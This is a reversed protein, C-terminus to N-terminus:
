EPAVSERLVQSVPVMAISTGRDQLGWLVLASVTDARLRGLMVVAGEQRARFAAQDLTRRITAPDQGEGDFDRFLTTSPVGEKAALQQATNLGKPMMVMGHGSAALYATAQSSVARSAQLGGGPAELVAVAEPVADLAGALAVEVDAAQAGEPMDALALVEFGRERYAAATEAATPHSPDIAFSVPFPFAALADPGLPGSGDDILVVSLRPVEADATSEAAFRTLPSDGARPAAEAPATESTEGVTPLRGERVAPDRDILSTAPRGIGPASPSQAQVPEPASETGPRLELAPGDSPAPRETVLASEGQPVQPIPPQAPDTSIDPEADPSPAGPATGQRAPSVPADRAVAVEAGEAPEVGPSLADPAAGVEPRDLPVTDAGVDRPSAPEDLAADPRPPLAVGSEPAPRRGPQSRDELVEPAAAAMEEGAAQRDAAPPAATPSTAESATPEAREDAAPLEDTDAPDPDATTAVAEAAPEPTTSAAEGTQEPAVPALDAGEAEEPDDAGESSAVEPARADGDDALDAAPSQAARTAEPGPDATPPGIAVGLAAVSVGSVVVGWIVGTLIGRAM